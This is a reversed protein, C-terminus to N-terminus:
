RTDRLSAGDSRRRVRLQSARQARPSPLGNGRFSNSGCAENLEQTVACQLDLAAASPEEGFRLAERLVDSEMERGCRGNPDRLRVVVDVTVGPGWKPGDRAVLEYNPATAARSQEERPVTRWVEERNLVCAM